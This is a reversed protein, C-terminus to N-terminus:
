CATTRRPGSPTPTSTTACGPTARSSTGDHMDNQLNPDVFSVTPLSPFDPRSAASRSTRPRRCTASTSRRTTSAPTGASATTAAAPGAPLSESYGAFTLGTTAATASTTPPSTYPCDDSNVGQLSGSFLAVYNGQSPHTTGHFNTFSAGQTILSNIYPANSSGVIDDYYKNEETVLVIHDYAPLGAAAAASPASGAPHAAVTSAVGVATLLFATGAALVARRNKTALLANATLPPRTRGPRSFPHRLRM